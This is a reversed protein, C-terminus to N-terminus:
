CLFLQQRCCVVNIGILWETGCDPSQLSAVATQLVRLLIEPYLIQIGSPTYSNKPADKWVGNPTSLLSDIITVTASQHKSVEV